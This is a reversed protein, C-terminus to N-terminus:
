KAVPGFTNGNNDKTLSAAPRERRAILTTLLIGQMAPMMAAIMGLQFARSEGVGEREAIAKGILLNMM